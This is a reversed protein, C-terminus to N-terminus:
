WWTLLGSMLIDLPTFFWNAFPGIIPTYTAGLQLLSQLAFTAIRWWGM